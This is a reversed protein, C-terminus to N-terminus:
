SFSILVKFINKKENLIKDLEPKFSSHRITLIDKLHGDSLRSKYKSKVYKMSSFTQECRYTSGFLSIYTRALNKLRPFQDPLSKYFDILKMSNSNFQKRILDDVQLDILELQLNAPADDIDISVPNQFVKIERNKLDFDSFRENFQVKLSTLIDLAFKIPFETDNEEKLSNCNKFHEFCKTSIHKEFLLLKLRFAKVHTYLDCVLNNEGQMKKNVENLHTAIDSIFALKWLWM